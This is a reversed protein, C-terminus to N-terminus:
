SFKKQLEELNLHFICAKGSPSSYPVECLFLQEILRDIEEQQLIQNRKISSSQAMSRAISEEYPIEFELNLKMLRLVNMILETENFKGEILTPVGHIIFSDSGFEEMEFGISQFFPLAEKLIQADPKSVHLTQPFLLGQTQGEGSALMQKYREYLVRESAHQQDILSIGSKLQVVLYSSLYQHAKFGAEAGTVPLEDQQSPYIMVQANSVGTQMEQGAPKEAKSFALSTWSTSSGRNDIVHSQAEYSSVADHQMLRGVGPNSNEFDIQPSLSYQALSYRVAAKLFQYILREDEFKIEDKTPHVNVDIKEPDIHIFLVFFPHMGEPILQEYAAHVAHQLYPSRVFRRNVFLIQEGKTKKAIDPKGIFGSIEVADTHPNVPLLADDYKKGYIGLIRNKLNAVPLQYVIQENNQYHFALEPYSLAQHIFEDQIHRLEMADSKLFKRRAPINYFLNKVQIQTGSACACPEQTKLKSDSMLIRTGTTSEHPKTKLEVQAVSAISALAEGRFGKTHLHFLDESTQIKSTAHREFAMRADTPSMGCGDDSIQILAKGAERVLVSIKRAGSDIANDMLEKVVSAPRQIVEGAAIQNIVGDPLLRILDAM